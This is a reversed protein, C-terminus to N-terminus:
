ELGGFSHSALCKHLYFGKLNKGNPIRVKAVPMGALIEQQRIRVLKSRVQVVKHPDQAPIVATKNDIGPEGFLDGRPSPAVPKATRYFGQPQELHIGILHGVDNQGMKMIVMRAIEIAKRARSEMQLVAVHRVRGASAHAVLRESRGEVEFVNLQQQPM